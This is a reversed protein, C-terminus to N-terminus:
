LHDRSGLQASATGVTLGVILLVILMKKRM